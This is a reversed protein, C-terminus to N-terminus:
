PAEGQGIRVLLRAIGDLPLVHQVAGSAVATRPMEAREAEAPDQAITIGGAEAVARTGETGDRGTGSLLVSVVGNRLSRAGTEFMVDISPRSHNVPEEVSLSYSDVEVLLHYGGPAVVVHGPRIPEKDVVEAVPLECREALYRAFVREDAGTARHQVIAVAMGLDAPLGGLLRALAPAGGWSGGVMVLVPTM